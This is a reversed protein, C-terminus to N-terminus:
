SDGSSSLGARTPNGPRPRFLSLSSLVAELLSSGKPKRLYILSHRYLCWSSARSERQPAAFPKSFVKQLNERLSETYSQHYLLFLHQFNKGISPKPINKAKFHAGWNKTIKSCRAELKPIKQVARRSNPFKEFQEGQSRWRSAFIM